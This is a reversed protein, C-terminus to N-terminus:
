VSHWFGLCWVKFKWWWLFRFDKLRICWKWTFYFTHLM